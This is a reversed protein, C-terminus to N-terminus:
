RLNPKCVVEFQQPNEVLSLGLRQDDSALGDIEPRFYKFRFFGFEASVARKRTRVQVQVPRVKGCLPQKTRPGPTDFRVPIGEAFRERKDAVGKENLALGSRYQRHIVQFRHRPQPWVFELLAGQYNFERADPEPHEIGDGAQLGFEVINVGNVLPAPLVVLVNANENRTHTPEEPAEDNFGLRAAIAARREISKLLQQAAGRPMLTDSHCTSVSKSEELGNKEGVEPPTAMGFEDAKHGFAQGAPLLRQSTAADRLSRPAAMRPPATQWMPAIETTAQSRM